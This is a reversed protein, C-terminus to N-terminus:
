CYFEGQEWRRDPPLSGQRLLERVVKLAEELEAESRPSAISLRVYARPNRNRSRALSILAVNLANQAGAVIILDDPFDSQRLLNQNRIYCDM